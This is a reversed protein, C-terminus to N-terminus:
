LLGKVAKAWLPGQVMSYLLVADGVPNSAQYHLVPGKLTPFGAFELSTLLQKLYVTDNFARAAMIALGSASASAELIPFIPGSDIDDSSQCSEPWERSYGFGIFSRRLSTCARIYQDRAFNPDIIQLMHCAMWISSGEPCAGVPSPTGNIEFASILLGTRSELLKQKAKSVWSKFFGSHDTGDLCDSLRM